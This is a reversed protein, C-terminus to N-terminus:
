EIRNEEKFKEIEAPLEEFIFREIDHNPTDFAPYESIDKISGSGIAAHYLYYVQRVDRSTGKIRKKLQEIEEENLQERVEPEGYIEEFMEDSLRNLLDSQRKIVFEMVRVDKYSMLDSIKEKARKFIDKEKVYDRKESDPKYIDSYKETM